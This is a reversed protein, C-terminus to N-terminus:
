SGPFFVNLHLSHQDAYTKIATVDDAPPLAFTVAFQPDDSRPGSLWTVFEGAPLLNIVQEISNL